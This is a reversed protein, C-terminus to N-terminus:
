HLKKSLILFNDSFNEISHFNFIERSKNNGDNVFIGVLIKKNNKDFVASLRKLHSCGTIEFNYCCFNPDEGKFNESNKKFSNIKVEKITLFRSLGEILIETGKDSFDEPDLFQAM